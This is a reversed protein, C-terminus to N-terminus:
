SGASAIENVAEVIVALDDQTLAPHVPISLVQSAILETSPLHVNLDFSPLRHIPTPYYVGNGVGKKFLEAAFKDRDAEVIKITYQHYVHEAGPLVKPTVVGRLNESLFQANMQRQQTWLPLKKLQERGIAAHIDTMRTNFGVLENQYRVEMGQNRLMRLTRNISDSDTTIMGGEGSTMNKTPYFSFSGAVGWAGVPIGNLKALHAQAADEFILLDHKQAISLIEPMNAPHGYLHVPMIARTNPTLSEEIKQPDITFYDEEIDVFVPTAGTLSVANATAAFSFSPVIVEDGEGIGAALFALHLASTGSNVAVCHRNAMHASFENEFAEVEPGQALGGSQLVRDVAQREEIGILPHAAPIIM